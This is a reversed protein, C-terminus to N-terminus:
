DVWAAENALLLTQALSQWPSIPQPMKNPDIFDGRADWRRPMSPMGPMQRDPMIITPAWTFAEDGAGDRNVTIFDLMDGTKVAVGKRDTMLHGGATTWEGSLADPQGNQHHM